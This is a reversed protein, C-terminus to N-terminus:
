AALRMPEKVLSLRRFKAQPALTARRPLRLGRYRQSYDISIISGVVATFLLLAAAEAQLPLLIFGATAATIVPFTNM